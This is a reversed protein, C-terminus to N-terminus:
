ASLGTVQAIGVPTDSVHISFSRSASEGERATALIAVPGYVGGNTEHAACDPTWTVVGSTSDISAGAPLGTASWTVPAGACGVLDLSPTVTLTSLEAITQPDTIAALSVSGPTNTVQITFSSSGTEAGAHATVTFPGYLGGNTEFAGCDPTWTVIGTGSDISAGSPLGTATWTTPGTACSSITASPTVTLLAGEAVTQAPIAD